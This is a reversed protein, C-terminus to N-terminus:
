YKGPHLGPNRQKHIADNVKEVVKSNAEEHAYSDKLADDGRKLMAQKTQPDKEKMARGKLYWGTLWKEHNTNWLDWEKDSIGNPKAMRPIKYKYKGIKIDWSTPTRTVVDNSKQSIHGGQQKVKDWNAKKAEPTGPTPINKSAKPTAMTMADELSSAKRIRDGPGDVNIKAIEGQDDFRVGITAVSDPSNIALHNDSGGVLFFGSKKISAVNDKYYKQVAPSKIKKLAQREAMDMWRQEKAAKSRDLKPKEAPAEKKKAKTASKAGHEYEGVKVLKDGHSKAVVTGSKDKWRGFGAYQLGAQKAKESAKSEVLALVAEAVIKRLRSKEIKM